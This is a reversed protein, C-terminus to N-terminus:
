LGEAALAADIEAATLKEKSAKPKKTKGAIAEAVAAGVTRMLAKVLMGVDEDKLLAAASPNEVLTAKLSSMENKLSDEFLAELALIRTQIESALQSLEIFKEAANEETVTEVTM